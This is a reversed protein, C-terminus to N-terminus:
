LSLKPIGTCVLSLVFGNSVLPMRPALPDLMCLWPTADRTHLSGRVYSSPLDAPLFIPSPVM